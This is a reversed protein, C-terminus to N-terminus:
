SVVVFDKDASVAMWRIFGTKLSKLKFGQGNNLCPVSDRTEEIEWEDGHERIRNKGLNSIGEVKIIM